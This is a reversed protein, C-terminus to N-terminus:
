LTLKRKIYLDEVPGLLLDCEGKIESCEIPFLSLEYATAIKVLGMKFVMYSHGHAISLIDEISNGFRTFHEPVYETIILPRQKDIM